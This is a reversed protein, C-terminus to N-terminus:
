HYFLANATCLRRNSEAWTWWLSSKRLTSFVRHLLHKGISNQSTQTFKWDHKKEHKGCEPYIESDIRQIPFRPHKLIDHDREERRHNNPTVECEPERSNRVEENEDESREMDQCRVIGIGVRRPSAKNGLQPTKLPVVEVTYCM